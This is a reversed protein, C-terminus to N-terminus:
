QALMLFLIQVELVSPCFALAPTLLAERYKLEQLSASTDCTQQATLRALNTFRTGPCGPCLGTEFFLLICNTKTLM